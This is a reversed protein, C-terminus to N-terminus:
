RVLTFDRIRMTATPNQNARRTVPLASELGIRLYRTRSLNLLGTLPLQVQQVGPALVLYRANMYHGGPTVVLRWPQDPPGADRLDITMRLARWGSWNAKPKDAGVFHRIAEPAIIKGMNIERGDARYQRSVTAIIYDSRVTVKAPRARARWGRLQSAPSFLPREARRPLSIVPLALSKGAKARMDSRTIVRERRDVKGERDRSVVVETRTATLGKISFRGKANTTTWLGGARVTAGRVPTGRHTVTGTVTTGPRGTLRDVMWMRLSAFEAPDTTVVPLYPPRNYDGCPTFGTNQGSYPSATAAELRAAAAPDRQKLAAILSADELGDRVAVLRLSRMLPKAVDGSPYLLSGEGNGGVERGGGSCQDPKTVHSLGWPQTWPDRGGGNERWATLAWYFTGQVDMQESLWGMVRPEALSKDILVNPTYRQTDSGYVYWWTGKGQARLQDMRTRHLFYNWLTPAWIDVSGGMVAQAADTPAETVMVRAPSTAGRLQAAARAVVPYEAETPEDVPLSFLRGAYPRYATSLSSAWTPRRADTYERDTIISYLPLYPMEIMPFGLAAGTALRAGPGPSWDGVWTDPNIVPVSGPVQSPAVGHARLMPLGQALLGNILAANTEPVGYWRAVSIVDLRGVFPRRDLDVAVPLVDLSVPVVGLPGLDVQGRYAGPPQDRPVNVEVLLGSSQGGPLSVSRGPALDRLPDPYQSSQLRDVGTSTRTVPVYEIVSVQVRSADITGPGTLGSPRPTVNVPADPRVVVVQGEVDGQGAALELQARADGPRATSPFVTENPDVVWPAPAAGAALPSAAICAVATVLLPRVRMVM